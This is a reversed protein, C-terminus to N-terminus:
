GALSITDSALDIAAYVDRVMSRDMDKAIESMQSYEVMLEEGTEACKRSTVGAALKRQRWGEHVLAAVREVDPLKM